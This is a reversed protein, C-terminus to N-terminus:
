RPALGFAEVVGAARATEAGRPERDGCHERRAPQPEGKGGVGFRALVLRERWARVHGDAGVLVALEDRRRCREVAPRSRARRGIERRAHARRQAGPGRVALETLEGAARAIVRATGRRVREHPPVVARQRDARRLVLPGRPEDGQAVVAVRRRGLGGGKVGRRLLDGVDRRRVQLRAAREDREAPGALALRKEGDALDFVRDPADAGPCRM